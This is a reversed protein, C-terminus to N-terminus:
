RYIYDALNITPADNVENITINVSSQKTINKEVATVSFTFQDVGNFNLRPQYSISGSSGISLTGNTVDSVISYNLTVTENASVSLNGSYSTDENVSFSDLGFTIAFPVSTGGGGGGGCSSVFLLALLFFLRM